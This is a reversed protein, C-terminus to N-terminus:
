YVTPTLAWKLRALCKFIYLLISTQICKFTIKRLYENINLIIVIKTKFFNGRAVGLFISICFTLIHSLTTSESLFEWKYNKNDHINSYSLLENNEQQEQKAKM